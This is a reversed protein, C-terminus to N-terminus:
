APDQRLAELQREHEDIQEQLIAGDSRSYGVHRLLYDAPTWDNPHSMRVALYLVVLLVVALLVVGFHFKGTLLGYAVVVGILLLTPIVLRRFNDNVRDFSVKRARLIELGREVELIQEQHNPRL